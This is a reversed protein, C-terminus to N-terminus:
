EEKLIMLSNKPMNQFQFISLFNAFKSFIEIQGCKYKKAMYKKAM